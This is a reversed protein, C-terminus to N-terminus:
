FQDFTPAPRTRRGPRAECRRPHLGDRGYREFRWCWRYFVTRSIGAERCAATVSGLQHARRMVRLRMALISDELTMPEDEWLPPERARTCVSHLM